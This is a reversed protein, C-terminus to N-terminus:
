IMWAVTPSAVRLASFPQGCLRGCQSLLVLKFRVSVNIKGRDGVEDARPNKLQSAPEIAPRGPGGKNTGTGPSISVAVPSGCSGHSTLTVASPHHWSACVRARVSLSAHVVPRPLRVLCVSTGRGTHRTQGEKRGAKSAQKRTHVARPAPGGERPSEGWDLLVSEDRM